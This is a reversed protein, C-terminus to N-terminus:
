ECERQDQPLDRLSYLVQNVGIDTCWLGNAVWMTSRRNFCYDTSFARVPIGHQLLRPYRRRAEDPPGLQPAPVLLVTRACPGVM